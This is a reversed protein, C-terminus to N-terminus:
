QSSPRPLSLADVDLFTGKLERRCDRACSRWGRCCTMAGSGCALVDLVGRASWWCKGVFQELLERGDLFRESRHMM